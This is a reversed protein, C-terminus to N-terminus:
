PRTIESSKIKKLCTSFDNPYLKANYFPYMCNFLWIYCFLCVTVIVSKWLFAFTYHRLISWLINCVTSTIALCFYRCGYFSIYIGGKIIWFCIPPIQFIGNKDKGSGRICLLFYKLTCGHASKKRKNNKCYVNALPFLIQLIFSTIIDLNNQFFIHIIHLSEYLNRLVNFLVFLFM